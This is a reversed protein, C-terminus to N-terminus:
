DELVNWDVTVSSLIGDKNFEYDIGGVFMGAGTFADAGKDFWVYAYYLGGGDADSSDQLASNAPYASAVQTRSSEGIKFGRPLPQSPDKTEISLTGAPYSKDKATLPLESDGAGKNYFSVDDVSGGMMITMMPYDIEIWANPIEDWQGFAKTPPGFKEVVSDVSCSECYFLYASLEAFDFVRPGSEEFFGQPAERGDQQEDTLPFVSPTPSPTQTATPSPSVVTAPPISVPPQTACGCLSLSILSAVCFVSVNRASVM